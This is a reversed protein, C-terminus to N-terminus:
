GGNRELAHRYKEVSKQVANVSVPGGGAAISAKSLVESLELQTMGDEFLELLLRRRRESALQGRTHERQAQALERLLTARSM